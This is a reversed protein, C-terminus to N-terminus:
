KEAIECFNSVFDRFQFIKWIDLYFRLRICEWELFTYNTEAVKVARMHVALTTAPTPPPTPPIFGPWHHLHMVFSSNRQMVRFHIFKMSNPSWIRYWSYSGVACSLKSFTNRKLLLWGSFESLTKLEFQHFVEDSDLSQTFPFPYWVKLSALPQPFLRLPPLSSFITLSLSSELEYLLLLHQNTQFTRSPLLLCPFLILGTFWLATSVHFDGVLHKWANWM